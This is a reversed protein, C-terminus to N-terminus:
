TVLVSSISLFSWKRQGKLPTCLSEAADKLYVILDVATGGAPKGLTEHFFSVFPLGTNKDAHVDALPAEHTIGTQVLEFKGIGYPESTPFISLAAVVNATSVDAPAVATGGVGNAIMMPASRM